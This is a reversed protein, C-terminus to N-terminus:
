LGPEITLFRLKRFPLSRADSAFVSTFCRFLCGPTNQTNPICRCHFGGRDGKLFPPFFFDLEPEGKSFEDHGVNKARCLTIPKMSGNISILNLARLVFNSFFEFVWHGLNLVATQCLM